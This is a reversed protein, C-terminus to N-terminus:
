IPPQKSEDHTHPFRHHPDGLLENPFEVVRNARAPLRIEGLPADAKGARRGGLDVRPNAARDLVADPKPKAPAVLQMDRACARIEGGRAVRALVDPRGDEHGIGAALNLRRWPAGQSHNAVDNVPRRRRMGTLILPKAVVAVTGAVANGALITGRLAVRGALPVDGALAVARRGALIVARRM